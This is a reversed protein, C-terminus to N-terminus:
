KTEENKQMWRAGCNPCQYEEYASKVAEEILKVVEPNDATIILAQQRADVQISTYQRIAGYKALLGRFFRDIWTGADKERGQKLAKAIISETITLVKDAEAGLWDKRTLTHVPYSSDNEVNAPITPYSVEPCKKLRRVISVVTTVPLRLRKAIKKYGMGAITLRAIEDDRGTPVGRM